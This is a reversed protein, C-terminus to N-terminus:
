WTLKGRLSYLRDFPLGLHRCWIRIEHAGTASSTHIVVQRVDLPTGAHSLEEIYNLVPRITDDGVVDYDLWLEDISVDIERLGEIAEASSRYVLASRDDTFRRVDDVLVILPAATMTPLGDSEMAEPEVALAVSRRPLQGRCSVVM